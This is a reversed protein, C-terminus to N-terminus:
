RLKKFAAVFQDGRDYENKFVGFSAAAPSLIILDGRRAVSLAASFAEKMSEAAPVLLKKSSGLANVMKESAKGKFLIVAKVHRLADKAWVDYELSKDAGGGILITKKSYKGFSEFAARVAEPTTGNTDNVFLIGKKKGLVELRGPLGKHKKLISLSLKRPIELLDAVKLALSINERNHSGPLVFKSSKPLSRASVEHVSALTKIKHESAVSRHVVLHDGKRQFRFINSKDDFYRKMDGAYYNLHDRMFSTFVAVHPSLKADGFGQLQWSDLELVVFDGAKVKKLLPLTVGGRVNGGLYVRKKAAILIDFILQTVTSKGRTGTIGIVTVGEPLLKMFLSADMEVPVNAARAAALYPSNLPADPARMVMETNQFYELRHEGLAYKINPFASLKKISPALVEASKLDTVLLDAGEKALFRVLQVGRGLLGLGMVTIKKGRFFDKQM